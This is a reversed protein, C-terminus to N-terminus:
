FQDADLQMLLDPSASLAARYAAARPLIHASYFAATTIKAALFDSHESGRDLEAAAAIAQRLMLWGGTVTGALMLLNVAAADGVRPDDSSASLVYDAAAELEGCASDVAEATGAIVGNAHGRASDVTVRIDRTLEGMAEGGDRQLKRGALDAAQIGTTGEYITLIRADRYFQAVGTEEVFGM